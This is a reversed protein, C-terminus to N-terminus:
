GTARATGAVCALACTQFAGSFIGVSGGALVGVSGGAFGGVSGGDTGGVFLALVKEGQSHLRDGAEMWEHAGGHWDAQERRLDVAGGGVVVGLGGGHVVHQRGYVQRYQGASSCFRVAAESNLGSAAAYAAGGKGATVGNATATGLAKNYNM